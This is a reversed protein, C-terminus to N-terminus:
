KFEVNSKIWGQRQAADWDPSGREIVEGTDPNYAYDEPHHKLGHTMRRGRGLWYCVLAIPTVVLILTIVVM